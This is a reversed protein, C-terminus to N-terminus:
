QSHPNNLSKKNLETGKTPPAPAHVRQRVFDEPYQEFRQKDLAARNKDSISVGDAKFHFLHNNSLFVSWDAQAIDTNTLDLRELDLKGLAELIASDLKSSDLSLETLADCNRLALVGKATFGDCNKLEIKSFNTHAALQELENDTITSDRLRMKSVLRFAAPSWEQESTPPHCVLVAAGSDGLIMIRENGKLRGVSLRWARGYGLIDFIAYGSILAFLVISIILFAAFTKNEAQRQPRHLNRKSMALQTYDTSILNDSEAPCKCTETKILWQTMSQKARLPKRCRKCKKGLKKAQMRTIVPNGIDKQECKCSDGLGIWQTISGRKEQISKGCEPCTNIEEGSMLDSCDSNRYCASKVEIGRM